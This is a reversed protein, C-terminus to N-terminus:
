AYHDLWPVAVHLAKNDITLSLVQGKNPKKKRVPHPRKVFKKM